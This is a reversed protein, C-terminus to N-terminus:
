EYVNQRIAEEVLANLSIGRASATLAAKRHLDAGIRVNFTGKFPKEPKKGMQLCLDLYENVAEEFDRRLDTVNDGEYTIHDNIGILKGFFVNDEDSFEISGYYGKYHIAHKM